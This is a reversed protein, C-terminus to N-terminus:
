HTGANEKLVGKFKELQLSLSSDIVKTGLYIKLGSILEKNLSIKLKFEKGLKTSIKQSILDKEQDDPLESFEINIYELKELEANINKVDEESFENIKDLAQSIFNTQLGESAFHKFTKGTFDTATNIIIDNLNNLLEKKQMDLVSDFKEKKLKLEEDIEALKKDREISIEQQLKDMSEKKRQEYGNLLSDYKIKLEEVDKEKKDAEELKSDILDKRKQLNSIVPKYFVKQLIWILVLFNIIEFIFTTFDFKM